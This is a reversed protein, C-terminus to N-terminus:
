HRYTPPNILAHPPTTSSALRTVLNSLHTVLILKITWLIRHAPFHPSICRTLHQSTTGPTHNTPHNTKNNRTSKNPTNHAPPIIIMPRTSPLISKQAIALSLRTRRHTITTTRKSLDLLM